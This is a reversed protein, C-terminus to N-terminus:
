KESLTTLLNQSAEIEMRVRTARAYSGAHPSLIVNPQNILVGQYPEHEFVDLAAGALHGSDLAATLAAEDILAGRSTNVLYSGPKMHAIRTANMFHHMEKAASPLHLTVLDAAPLLEGIDVLTVRPHAALWAHDPHVDCAVIKAGLMDLFTGVRRGVRGLGAIGVTTESLLFGMKKSWQGSRVSHNHFALNRLLAFVLGITLEAVAEAPAEPTNLVQIAHARAADLDVNDLGTGCRSVVKLHAAADALVARTLPEVGAIIGDPKHRHLLEAVEDETLTRGHPNDQVECGAATLLDVPSRDARGFSSTTTLIKM